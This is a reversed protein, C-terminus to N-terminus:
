PPPRRAPESADHLAQVVALLAPDAVPDLRCALELPRQWVFQPADLAVLAGDRVERDVLAMPLIGIHGGRELLRRCFEVSTTTCRAEPPPVGATEFAERWAAEVDGANDGLVWEARALEATTRAGDHQAFPHSRGALVRYTNSMLTETHLGDATARAQVRTYLALDLTGDRLAADLGQQVGDRVSLVLRPHTRALRAAAEAALAAATPGAGLVIHGAVSGRAAQLRQRLEAEDRLVGRAFREVERGFATAQPAASERDLLRVGLEDELLGLAKSVAQQTRGLHAAARTFGGHDLVAIFYRLQQM